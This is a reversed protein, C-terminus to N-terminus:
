RGVTIMGFKQQNTIPDHLIIPIRQAFFDEGGWDFVQYSNTNPYIEEVTVHIPGFMDAYRLRLADANPATMKETFIQLKVEDICTRTEAGQLTCSLEPLHSLQLATSFLREQTLQTNQEGISIDTAQAFFWVGLFFLGALIVVVLITEISQQGKRLNNRSM